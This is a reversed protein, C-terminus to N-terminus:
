TAPAAAVAVVLPASVGQENGVGGPVLARFTRQGAGVLTHALSFTGDPDVAGSQVTHYTGASSLVQLEVTQGILVPAVTGSFTVSQGVTATATSAGLTVLARVGIQVPASPVGAIEVVYTTNVTPNVTFSFSGDAALPMSSVAAFPIGSGQGRSRLVVAAGPPFENATGSLTVAQGADVTTTSALLNLQPNPVAQVVLAAADSASSALTRTGRLLARLSLTGVTAFRRAVAWSGDAAVTTKAITRWDGNGNAQQLRVVADAAAPSVTGRVTLTTGAVVDLAPLQMTVAAQVPERVTRSRTGAGSVWYRCSAQVVGDAETFSYSGSAGTRMRGVLVATATGATRRWLTVNRGAPHPASLKGTISVADGAVLPDPNVLISLAPQGGAHASALAVPLGGLVLAGALALRRISPSAPMM